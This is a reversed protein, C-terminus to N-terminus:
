RKRLYDVLDMLLLVPLLILITSGTFIVTIMSLLIYLPVDISRRLLRTLWPLTKDRQMLKQELIMQDLQESSQWQVFDLHHRVASRSVMQKEEESLDAFESCQYTLRHAVATESTRDWVWHLRLNDLYNISRVASQILGHICSGAGPDLDVRSGAILSKPLINKWM